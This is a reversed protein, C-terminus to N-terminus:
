YDETFKSKKPKKFAKGKKKPNIEKETRYHSGAELLRGTKTNGFLTVTKGTSMGTLRDKVCRVTTITKEEDNGETNREVAIMFTSWFAISQSGRFDSQRVQGGAEFPTRNSDPKALHSLLFISVPEEQIYTGLRKMSKDIGKVDSLNEDHTITTLNDIFIYNCGMARLEEMLAIINDISTDGDCEAILLKGKSELSKIALNAQETTYDRGKDWDEHGKPHHNKPLHIKKNIWKGALVRLTFSAREEMFILGTLKKHYDVLHSIIEKANETKGTGSGGGITYMNHPRIGFTLETLGNWPFSLGMEVEATAEKYLDSVGKIQSVQPKEAKWWADVFEADRGEMLCENPDGCGDPLTLVVAKERLLRCARRNLEMGAKDNDFCFIIKKFKKIAKINDVIENIGSEGKMVSWIHFLQNEWQTGARSEHLMQQAAMADCEGGVIMLIDKRQKSASVEKMTNQGFLKTKGWVRGLRGTIFDKPLNRCKAGQLKDDEVSYVPYYHRAVKKNDNVGVRVNYLKAIEGKIGRSVLNKVPLSGFHAVELGWKTEMELREEEFMVAYKDQEKMGGLALERTFPDKLKGAELLESFEEQSYRTMGNIDDQFVTKGKGKKEFYPQGSKHWHSHSCYGNGDPFILLHSGDKDHGMERCQPCAKSKNIAM